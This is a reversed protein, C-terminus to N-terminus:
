QIEGNSQLNLSHGASPKLDDNSTLHNEMEQELRGKMTKGLDVTDDIVRTRNLSGERAPSALATATRRECPKVNLLTTPSYVKPTILNYKPSYTGLPPGAQKPGMVLNRRSRSISAFAYDRHLSSDERSPNHDM